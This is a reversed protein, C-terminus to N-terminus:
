EIGPASSGIAEVPVWECTCGDHDGPSLFDGEPWDDPNALEPDAERDITVFGDLADHSELVTRPEGYFGHVWQWEIDVSIEAALRAEPTEDVAVPHFAPLHDPTAPMTGFGRGDAIATANRVLRAAAQALEEPDPLTDLDFGGTQRKLRPVLSGRAAALVAHDGALLRRRAMAHLGAVLYEVAAAARRAAEEINGLYRTPDLGAREIAQRARADYTVIASRAELAFDAFSNALLDTDDMGIAALVPALPAHSDVAENTIKQKTGSQRRARTKVKMGARTLAEDYASEAATLLETGLKSRLKTLKDLLRREAGGAKPRADATLAPPGGPPPGQEVEAPGAPGLAPSSPPLNPDTSAGPALERGRALIDLLWQRDAEDVLKDDDDLSCLALCADRNIVGALWLSVALKSKDQNVIVPSPDYGIRLRRLREKPVGAVIARPVLFTSTLDVHCVRDMTPAVASEFFKDSALWESWHNGGGVGGGVVTDVPLNSGRAFDRVAEERHEIGAPDLGKGLQVPVPPGAEKTWSFWHPAVFSVDNSDSLRQKASQYYQEEVANLPKGADTTDDDEDTDQIQDDFAESAVWMATNMAAASDSVATVYRTLSRLRHLDEVTAAMPSTALALWEQDPLWFRTVQDLPVVFATQKAVSGEPVLKITCEDETPKNWDIAAISFIFFEVGAPGDRQVQVMEGAVQYHWAHMRVLENPIQLANAYEDFMGVFLPDSSEIWEGSDNKEEVRIDCRACCDATVNAAFSAAGVTRAYRRADPQWDQYRSLYSQDGTATGRRAVVAGSAGANAPQVAGLRANRSPAGVTLPRLDSGRGGSAGAAASYSM